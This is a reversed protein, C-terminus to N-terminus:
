DCATGARAGDERNEEDQDAQGEGGEGFGVGLPHGPRAVEHVDHGGDQRARGRVEGPEAAAQAELAERQPDQQARRHQLPRERTLVEEEEPPHAKGHVQQVARQEPRREHPHHVAHVLERGVLVRGRPGQDGRRKRVRAVQRQERPLHDPQGHHVSQRDQPRIVHIRPTIPHRILQHLM